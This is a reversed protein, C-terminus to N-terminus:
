LLTAEVPYSVAAIYLGDAVGETKEIEESL